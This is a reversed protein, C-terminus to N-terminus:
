RRARAPRRSTRRAGPMCSRSAPRREDLRLKPQITPPPGIEALARLADEATAHPVCCSSTTAHDSRDDGSRGTPSPRTRRGPSGVPQRHDRPRRPAAGAGAASPGRLLPHRVPPTRRDPHDLPQRLPHRRHHPSAGRHRVGRGACRRWPARRRPLGPFATRCDSRRLPRRRRREGRALLVGAEEFCERIAAIWFRWVARAVELLRSAQRDDLGDCWPEVDPSRDADDVAGGPFVFMGGAFVAALTRRLM